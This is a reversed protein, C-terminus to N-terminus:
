HVVMVTKTIVNGGYKIQLIYLGSPYNYTNLQYSKNNLKDAFLLVGVQDYLKLEAEQILDSNLEIIIIDTNPNSNIILDSKINEILNNSTPIDWCDGTKANIECSYGKGIVFWQPDEFHNAKSFVLIFYQMRQKM